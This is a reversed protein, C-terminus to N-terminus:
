APPVFWRGGEPCFRVNGASFEGVRFTGVTPVYLGARSAIAETLMTGHQRLWGEIRLQSGVSIGFVDAFSLRAAETVEMSRLRSDSKLMYEIGSGALLSNDVRGVAPYMGGLSGLVPVGAYAISFGNALTTWYDVLKGSLHRDTNTQGRLADLPDKVLCPGNVTDVVKARCFVVESVRRAVNEVKPVVRLKRMRRLWSPLYRLESEPVFVLTDDGDCLFKKRACGALAYMLISLAVVKNGASTGATGSARNGFIEARMGNARVKMFDHDLFLRRMLDKEDHEGLDGLLVCLALRELAAKEELSGDFNAFDFSLCVWGEEFM